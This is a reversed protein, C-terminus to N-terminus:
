NSKANILEVIVDNTPTAICHKQGLTSIAGNLYDIETRKGKKIDQLMSSFNNSGAILRQCTEILDEQFVVGEAEAVQLCEDCLKKQIALVHPQNLGKNPLELLATLPNSMCNLIFKKWEWQKLNSSSEIDIGTQSFLETIIQSEESKDFILKGLHNITVHGPKLSSSAHTTVARLVSTTNQFKSFYSEVEEKVGIGNQLCLLTTDSSLHPLLSDLSSEVDYRKTTFLILTNPEIRDLAPIAKLAFTEKIHGDIKLGTTIVEDCFAKRGVLTVPHSKSLLAGLSAGLAGAGYIILHKPPSV